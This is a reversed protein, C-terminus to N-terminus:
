KNLKKIFKYWGFDNATKRRHCNSCRVACKEIEIKIRKISSGWRVMDSVNASKNGNHDFDLVIPDKEGCDKCPHKLLYDWVYQANRIRKERALKSKKYRMKEKNKKWYERDYERKCESCYAVLGGTDKRKAFEKDEKQKKCRNCIKM